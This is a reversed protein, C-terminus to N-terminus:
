TDKGDNIELSVHNGADVGSRTGATAGDMQVQELLECDCADINAIINTDFAAIDSDDDQFPEHALDVIHWEVHEVSYFTDLGGTSNPHAEHQDNSQIIAGVLSGGGNRNWLEDNQPEPELGSESRETELSSADSQSDDSVYNDITPQPKEEEAELVRVEDGECITDLQSHRGRSQNCKLSYVGKSSNGRHHAHHHAHHHLHYKDGRLSYAVKRMRPRNWPNMAKGHADLSSGPPYNLRTDLYMLQAGHIQPFRRSQFSHAKFFMYPNFSVSKGLRATKKAEMSQRKKARKMSDRIEKDNEGHQQKMVGIELDLIEDLTTIEQMNNNYMFHLYRRYYYVLPGVFIGVLLCVPIAVNVQASLAIIILAFSTLLNAVTEYIVDVAEEPLSSNFILISMCIPHLWLCLRQYLVLPVYIFQQMAANENMGDVRITKSTTTLHNSLRNAQLHKFGDETLNVPFDCDAFSMLLRSVALHPLRRAVRCAPNLHQIMDNATKMLGRSRLMILRFKCLLHATVTDIESAVVFSMGIWKVYLKIPTLLLIDEFFSICGGELWYATTESGMRVAFLFVYFCIGIVYLPLMIVCLYHVWTLTQTQAAEKVEMEFYQKAITQRFGSLVNVIFQNLLQKNQDYADDMQVITDYIEDASARAEEIRQTLETMAVQDVDKIHHSCVTQTHSALARKMEQQKLEITTQLGTNGLALTWNMNSHSQTTPSPTPSATETELLQGRVASSSPPYYRDLGSVSHPSSYFADVANSELDSYATDIELPADITHAPYQPLPDSVEGVRPHQLILRSYENGSYKMLREGDDNGSSSEMSTPKHLSKHLLEAEEEAGVDDMIRKMKELRAARFFTGSDTQLHHIDLVFRKHHAAQTASISTVIDNDDETPANIVCFYDRVYEVMITFLLNFPISVCTIIGTLVM